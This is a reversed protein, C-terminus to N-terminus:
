ACTHVQASTLRCLRSILQALWALGAQVLRSCSMHFGGCRILALVLGSSPAAVLSPSSFSVTELRRCSMPMMRQCVYHLLRMHMCGCMCVLTPMLLSEWLCCLVRLQVAGCEYVWVHMHCQIECMCLLPLYALM